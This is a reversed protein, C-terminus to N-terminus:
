YLRYSLAIIEILPLSIFKLKQLLSSIARARAAPLEPDNGLVKLLPTVLVQM